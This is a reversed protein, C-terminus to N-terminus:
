PWSAELVAKLGACIHTLGGATNEYGAEGLEEHMVTLRCEAGLPTIEWTLRGPGEAMARADWHMLFTMVLRRPPIAEVIRGDAAVTGDPNYFVYDAGTEITGRIETDYYYKKTWEGQTLAQWIREPTARIMVEYEYRLGTSKSAM